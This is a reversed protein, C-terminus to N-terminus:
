QVDDPTIQLYDLLFSAVKQFLPAANTAGWPSTVPRDIKVLIVFQPDDYPAFGAFSAITSGEGKEYQGKTAIQSTGTKGGIKYDEIAAPEAVGRKVSSILMSKMIESSQESIVRRIIQPKKEEYEGFRDLAGAIVTPQYLIGGNIVASFANIVQLPTTAIGQGFAKTVLDSESVWNRYHTLKGASEDPLEIGSKEGFGFNQLYDFLLSPGIKKAIYAMGTNLSKELIQTMTMIGYYKRTSNKITYDCKVYEEPTGKFVRHCDVDMPGSDNFNDIPRIEKSDIATAMIIAKFVSGPEYFDSVNTNRYVSIGEGNNKYRFYRDEGQKFVEIKYGPNYYHFYRDGDKTTKVELDEIEEDTLEFEEKEYTDGPRNPNFGPYSAMAMIEGTQPNQVIVQGARAQSELVQNKLLEEVKNQVVQDISLVIDTGNIAQEIFSSRATLTRGQLDVEGKIVGTQGALETNMSREIGYVPNFANDLFGILQPAFPNGAQEAYNRWHEDTFGLGAINLQRIKEATEFDIRNMVKVYRNPRRSLSRELVDLDMELLPALALAAGQADIVELPNTWVTEPRTYVGTLTLEQVQKIIEPGVNIKLIVYDRETKSLKQALDTVYELLLEEETKLPVEPIEFELDLLKQEEYDRLVQARKQSFFTDDIAQRLCEEDQDCSTSREKVMDFLIPGIALAIASPTPASMRAARNPDEVAMQAKELARQELLYPDAFLLELSVNNALEFFDHEGDKLLIRGRRATIVKEQMRQQAYASYEEHQLVQLQFLRVLLVTFLLFLVGKLLSIRDIKWRSSTQRQSYRSVM